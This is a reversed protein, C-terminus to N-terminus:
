AQYDAGAIVPQGLDVAAIKYGVSLFIVGEVIPIHLVRASIGAEDNPLACAYRDPAIRVLGRKQLPGVSSRM